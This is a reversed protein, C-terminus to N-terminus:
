TDGILMLPFCTYLYWSENWDREGAGRKKRGEKGRWTKEMHRKWIIM